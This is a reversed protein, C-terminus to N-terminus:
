QLIELVVKIWGNQDGAVLLQSDSSFGLALVASEMMMIQNEAQYGLDKRLKGTM